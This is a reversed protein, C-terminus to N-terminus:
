KKQSNHWNIWENKANFKEGSIAKLSLVAASSVESNPNSELVQILVPISKKDKRQMLAQMTGRQILIEKSLAYKHLVALAEEGPINALSSLCTPAFDKDDNIKKELFPISKPSQIMGLSEIAIGALKKDSGSAAKVLLDVSDESQLIGLSLAAGYRGEGSSEMLVQKLLPVSEPNGIWGLSIALNERDPNKTDGLLGELKPRAKEYKHRGLIFACPGYVSKNGSSIITLVKESTQKDPYTGIVDAAYFQIEREKNTLYGIVETNAAPDGIEKLAEVANERGKPFNQGIAKALLPVARKSQIRGLALYSAALTPSAPTKEALDLLYEEGEVLKLKGIVMAYTKAKEEDKNANALSLIKGSGNKSGINVLAEVALLRYTGNESDLIDAISSVAAPDKMRTLADLIIDTTVDKDKQFMNIIASTSTRDQLDGLAIAASGRVAPNPDSKLLERLKPLFSKDAIRSVDVIAQSRDSWNSSDLDKTIEEKTRLRPEEPTPLNAPRDPGKCFFLVVFLIYFLKSNFNM